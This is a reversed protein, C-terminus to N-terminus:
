DLVGRVAIELLQQVGPHAEELVVAGQQVLLHHGNVAYPARDARAVEVVARELGVVLDREAEEVARERALQLLDELGVARVADLEVGPLPLPAAEQMAGLVAREVEEVLHQLATNPLRTASWRASPARSRARTPM